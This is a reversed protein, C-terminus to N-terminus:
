PFDGTVNKGLMCNWNQTETNNSLLTQGYCFCHMIGCVGQFARLFGNKFFIVFIYGTHSSMYLFYTYRVNEDNLWHWLQSIGTLYLLCLYTTLIALQSLQLKFINPWWEPVWSKWTQFSHMKHWMLKKRNHVTRNYLHRYQRQHLNKKEPTRNEPSHCYSCQFETKHPLDSGVQSTPQFHIIQSLNTKCKM